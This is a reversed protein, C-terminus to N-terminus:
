NKVFENPFKIGYRALFLSIEDTLETQKGGYEKLEIDFWSINEELIKKKVREPFAFLSIIVNNRTFIRHNEVREPLFLLNSSEKVKRLFEQKEWSLELLIYKGKEIMQVVVDFHRVYDIFDNIIKKFLEVKKEKDIKKPYDPRTRIVKAPIGVALSFAPVDKTILSNAGITAGEGIIVGPMVFVHWPLWADKKITVPAFQAPYGELISQWSGHTFISCRGGIGVNDEITLVDTTNLVTFQFIKVSKGIRLISNSTTMGGVYVQERITSNDGIEVEQLDFYTFSGINVKKGLNIKKSQIISAFGIKTDDHISVDKGIIISGFGFHVNKGIKYGKLIYLFKKIFSPMIGITIIKVVPFRKSKNFM